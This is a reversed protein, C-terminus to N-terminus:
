RCEAVFLFGDRGRVIVSAFRDPPLIMGVLKWLDLSSERIDEIVLWGRSRLKRIAFEVTALNAHTCHLGDDIVLDLEPLSRELHEFTRPDTQDVYFTTIREEGFLIRRDVDAGFIQANPLYDRFARLSAGPKAGLGMNGTVDQNPSGLGVEFVSLHESRRPGLIHAYLREYDHNTSKDSGRECLMVALERESPHWYEGAGMTTVRPEWGHGLARAVGLLGPLTKRAAQLTLESAIPEPPNGSNTVYAPLEAALKAFPIM